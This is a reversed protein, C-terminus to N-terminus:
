GIPKAAKIRGWIALAAGILVSLNSIVEQWGSDDLGLRPAIVPGLAALAVGWVTKSQVLGKGVPEEVTEKFTIKDTIAQGILGVVMKGILPIM